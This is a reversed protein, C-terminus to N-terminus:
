FQVISIPIEVTYDSAAAVRFKFMRKAIKLRMPLYKTIIILFVLNGFVGLCSITLGLKNRQELIHLDTGCLVNVSASLNEYKCNKNENPFVDNQLNKIICKKKKICDKELNKWKIKKFKDCKIKKTYNIHEDEGM